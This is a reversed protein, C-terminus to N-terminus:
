IAGKERLALFIEMATAPDELSGEDALNMITGALPSLRVIRLDNQLTIPCVNGSRYWSVVDFVQGDHLVVDGRRVDAVDVPRGTSFVKIM